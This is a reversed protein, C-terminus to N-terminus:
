QNMKHREIITLSSLYYIMVPKVENFKTRETFDICEQFSLEKPVKIQIEEEILKDRQM